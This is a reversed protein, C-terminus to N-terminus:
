FFRCSLAVTLGLRSPEGAPGAGSRSSRLVTTCDDADMGISRMARTASEFRFRLAHHPRRDPGMSVDLHAISGLSVFGDQMREQAEAAGPAILCLALTWARWCWADPPSLLIQPSSM